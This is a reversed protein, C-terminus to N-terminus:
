DLAYGFLSFPLLFIINCEIKWTHVAKIKLFFHKNIIVMFCSIWKDMEREIKM